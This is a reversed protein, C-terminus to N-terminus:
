QFWLLRRAIVSWRLFWADIRVAHSPLSVFFCAFTVSRAFFQDAYCCYIGYALDTWMFCCECTTELLSVKERHCFFVVAIENCCRRVVVRGFCICVKIVWVFPLVCVSELPETRHQQSAASCWLFLTLVWMFVVYTIIAIHPLNFLLVMLVILDFVGRCILCRPFEFTAPVCDISCHSHYSSFVQIHAVICRLFTSYPWWFVFFPVIPPPLVRPTRVPLACLM